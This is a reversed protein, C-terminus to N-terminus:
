QMNGRGVVKAFELLCLDIYKSKAWWSSNWKLHHPNVLLDMVRGVEKGEKIAIVPLGLLSSGKKM